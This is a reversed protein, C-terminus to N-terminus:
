DGPQIDKIPIIPLHSDKVSTIESLKLVRSNNGSLTAVTLEAGREVLEAFFDVAEKHFDSFESLCFSVACAGVRIVTKTAKEFINQGPAKTPEAWGSACYLIPKNDPTIYMSAGGRFQCYENEQGFKLSSIQTLKANMGNLEGDIRFIQLNNDATWAATGESFKPTTTTFGFLYLRNSGCERILSMGQPNSILQIDPVQIWKTESNFEDYGLSRYVNAKRDQREVILLYSGDSDRAFAVTYAKLKGPVYQLKLEQVLRPEIPDSFDWFQVFPRDCDNIDQECYHPIAVINGAAQIGGPHSSKEFRHIYRVMNPLGDRGGNYINPGNFNNDAGKLKVFKGGQHNDPVDGLKVVFFEGLKPKKNKLKEKLVEPLSNNSPLIGGLKGVKATGGAISDGIAKILSGRIRTFVMWAGSPTNIRALGQIHSKENNPGDSIHNDPPLPAGALMNINFKGSSGKTKLAFEGFKSRTHFFNNEHFKTEVSGVCSDINNKERFVKPIFINIGNYNIYTNERLVSDHTQAHSLHSTFVTSMLMLAVGMNMLQRSTTMIKINM